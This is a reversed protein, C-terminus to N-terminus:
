SVLKRNVGITLGDKLFYEFRNATLIENIQKRCDLEDHIEIAIYKTKSLFDSAADADMFLQKESGEIDIKLIDIIDFDFLKMLGTISFGKLSTAEASEAVSVAWDNGDRFDKNLKLFCDKNWVGGQIASISVFNNQNINKELIKFNDSDPEVIGFKSGMFFKNLYISTLGINGGADIIKLPQKNGPENKNILDVLPQYEKLVFVQDYVAFDSSPPKRLTISSKSDGDFYFESTYSNSEEKILFGNYKLLHTTLFSNLQYDNKSFPLHLTKILQFYLLRYRYFIPLRKLDEIKKLLFMNHM